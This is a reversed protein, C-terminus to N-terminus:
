PNDLKQVKKKAKALSKTKSKRRQRLNLGYAGRFYKNCIKNDGTIL